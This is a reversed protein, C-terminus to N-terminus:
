DGDAATEDLARRQAWDELKAVLADVLSPKYGLSAGEVHAVSSHWIDTGDENRRWHLESSNSLLYTPRGVAGALEVVTTAPSIVLDLCSMLAAVSDLDNYQDIHELNLVKGPFKKMAWDLEEKCDDYQLNVFCIGDIDFIKSIEEITLYHENRSSTALSSRWSFGVLLIDDPLYKTIEAKSSEDVTLYKEGNFDAKGKRFEHLFDTVISFSDSESIEQVARNDLVLRNDPHKIRDYQDVRYEDAKRLRKVPVFRAREFSRSFLSVLRPDCGIAIESSEPLSELMDSYVSAFRIEDGPGYIATLFVKDGQMLHISGNHYKEHFYRSIDHRIKLETFTAFAKEIEGIGFYIKRLTMEGLDINRKKALALIRVAKSYDGALICQRMAERYVLSTPWAIVAADMIRLSEEYRLKASLARAYCVVLQPSPPSLRVLEEAFEIAKDIEEKALLAQVKGISNVGDLATQRSVHAAISEAGATNAHRGLPAHMVAVMSPFVTTLLSYWLAFEDTQGTPLTESIIKLARAEINTQGSYLLLQALQFAGTLEFRGFAVHMLLELANVTEQGRILLALAEREARDYNGISIDRSISNLTNKNDSNSLQHHAGAKDECSDTADEDISSADGDFISARLFFKDSEEYKGNKFLFESIKSISIKNRNYNFYLLLLNYYEIHPLAAEIRRLILDDSNEDPSFGLLTASIAKKYTLSDSRSLISEAPFHKVNKSRFSSETDKGSNRIIAAFFHVTNSAIKDIESNQSSAAYKAPTRFELLKKEANIRHAASMFGAYPSDLDALYRPYKLYVGAFLELRTLDRGRPTQTRDDTLGWGAYFPTGLTTVAIGRVLAEMGSLSSLTYVHDVTDFLDILSGDPDVIRAMREILTAKLKSRQFGRYVEPHPRYLIEADPNELRALRVIDSMRWGAPNGMRVAADNDVQGIVLVRKRTKVAFHRAPNGLDPLNYKSLRKEIMLDLAEQAEQMLDPDAAFDHTALIDKLDNPEASNYYLGKSDFVLSYPTAHNAGLDASRLFGDEVRILPVGLRRALGTLSGDDTYGWVYIRSVPPTVAQAARRARWGLFKRPAFAIRVDPCYDAIFGYKWGNFGFALAVPAEPTRRWARGVLHFRDLGEPVNELAPPYHLEYPYKDGQPPKRDFYALVGDNMERLITRPTRSRTVTDMQAQFQNALARSGALLHKKVRLRM